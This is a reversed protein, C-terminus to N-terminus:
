RWTMMRPDITTAVPASFSLQFFLNRSPSWELSLGSLSIGEDSAGRGLFTFEKALTARFALTPAFSYGITTMLAGSGHQHSGGSSYGFFMSNQISLRSPDFFGLHGMPEKAAVGTVGSYAGAGSALALLIAAIIYRKM